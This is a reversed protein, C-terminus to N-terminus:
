AAGAGAQRQAGRPGGLGLGLGLGLVLGLVHRMGFAAPPAPALADVAAKWAPSRCVSFSGLFLFNGERPLPLRAM